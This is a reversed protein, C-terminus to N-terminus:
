VWFLLRRAATTGCFGSLTLRQGDCRLVEHARTSRFLVLEGIAPLIETRPTDPTVRAPQTEQYLRTGGGFYPMRLYVNWAFQELLQPAFSLGTGEGPMWDTHIPAEPLDRVTCAMMPRGEHQAVAGDMSFMQSIVAMVRTLANTNAFINERFLPEYLAVRDFYAQHSQRFRFVNPGLKGKRVVNGAKDDGEYYELGIGAIAALTDDIDLPSLFRRVRLGANSGSMFRAAAASGSFTHPVYDEVIWDDRVL